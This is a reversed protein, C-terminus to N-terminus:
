QKTDTLLEGAFLKAKLERKKVTVCIPCARSLAHM